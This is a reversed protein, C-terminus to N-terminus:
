LGISIDLVGQAYKKETETMTCSAFAVPCVQDGHKQLFAGGLGYSSGDASVVM